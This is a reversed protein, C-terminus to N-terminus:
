CHQHLELGKDNKNLIDVLVDCPEQKQIAFSPQFFLSNKNHKIYSLQNQFKRCVSFFSATKITAELKGILVFWSAIKIIIKKIACDRNM